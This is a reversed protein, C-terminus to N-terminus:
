SCITIKWSMNVVMESLNVTVCRSGRRCKKQFQIYHMVEVKIVFKFNNFAMIEKLTVLPEIINKHMTHRERYFIPGCSLEHNVELDMEGINAEVHRPELM